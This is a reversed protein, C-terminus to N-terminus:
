YRAAAKVPVPVSESGSLQELSQYGVVRIGESKGSRCKGSSGRLSRTFVEKLVGGIDNAIARNGLEFVSQLRNLAPDQMRQVFLIIAPEIFDCVDNPMRHLIMRKAINRNLIGYDIQSVFAIEDLTLAIKTVDEGAIGGGGRPINFAPQRFQGALFDEVGM